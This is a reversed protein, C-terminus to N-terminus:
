KMIAHTKYPGILFTSVDANSRNWCLSSNGQSVVIVNAIPVTNNCLKNGHEMETQVAETTHILLNHYHVNSNIHLCKEYEVSM